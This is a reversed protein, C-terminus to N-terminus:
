RAEHLAGEDFEPAEAADTESDDRRLYRWAGFGFLLLGIVLLWVLTQMGTDPLMAGIIGTLRLAGYGDSATLQQGSSMATVQVEGFYNFTEDTPEGSIDVSFTCTYEKGPALTTLGCVERPILGDPGVVATGNASTVTYGALSEDVLQTIESDFVGTNTVTYNVEFSTANDALIARNAVAGTVASVPTGPIRKTVELGPFSNLATVAWEAGGTSTDDGSTPLATFGVNDSSTTPNAILTGNATVTLVPNVTDSGDNTEIVTCKQNVPVDKIVHTGGDRLTFTEGVPSCVQTFEFTNGDGESGKSEKTFSVDYAARPHHFEAGVIFTTTTSSADVPVTFTTDYKKRPVDNLPLNVLATDAGEYDEGTWTAFRMYPRRDGNVVEVEGRAALAPSAEYTIECEVGVPLEITDDTAVPGDSTPMAGTNVANLAYSRSTKDAGCTVTATYGGPSAGVLYGTHRLKLGVPSTRREITDTFSLVTPDSAGPAPARGTAIAPDKEAPDENSSSTVTMKLEQPLATPSVEQFTCLSGAPVDANPSTYNWDRDFDGVGISSPIVSPDTGITSTQSGIAKCQLAFQFRTDRTLLDLDEAKGAVTKELSVPSYEYGYHDTITIRNEEPNDRSRVFPSMTVEDDLDSDIYANGSARDIVWDVETPKIYAELPQGNDDMTLHLSGFNDGKVQCDAGVPINNFTVTGEGHIQELDELLTATDDTEPDRCVISFNHTYLHDQLNQNSAAYQERLSGPLNAVKDLKASTLRRSYTNTATILDDGARSTFTVTNGDITQTGGGTAITITTNLDIGTATTTPGESGTCEAGEPINTVTRRQGDTITSSINVGPTRDPNTCVLSIPFERQRKINKREESIYRETAPDFAVVKTSTVTSPKYSYVSTSRLVTETGIVFPVGFQIGSPDSSALTLERNISYANGNYNTRELNDVPTETIVCESGLPLDMANAHFTDGNELSFPFYKETYIPQAPPQQPDAPPAQPDTPQTVATQPVQCRLEYDIGRAPVLASVGGLSQTMTFGDGAATFTNTVTVTSSPATVTVSQVAADTTMVISASLTPNAETFSCTNGYPVGMAGSQDNARADAATLVVSGDAPVEVTGQLLVADAGFNRTGCTFRITYSGPVALGSNNVVAKNLTVTGLKYDYTNVVTVLNRESEGSPWVTLVPTSQGNANSVVTQVDNHDSSRLEAGVFRTNATDGPQNEWMNCTSGVPINTIVADDGSVAVQVTGEFAKNTPATCRYNVTYSASALDASGAATGNVLKNVFVDRVVYEYTTRFRMESRSTERVPLTFHYSYNANPDVAVSAGDVTVERGALRIQERQAGSLNTLPRVTCDQGVPIGTVETRGSVQTGSRRMTITARWTPLNSSECRIEFQYQDSQFGDVVPQGLIEKSLVLTGTRYNYNNYAHAPNTDQLQVSYTNNGGNPSAVPGTPATNWQLDLSTGSPPVASAPDEKIQCNAGKPLTEVNKTTGRSLLASDTLKIGPYAESVRVGFRSIDECAYIINFQRLQLEAFNAANGTVTKQLELTSPEFKTKWQVSCSPVRGTPDTVVVESSAGDALNNVRVPMDAPETGSTFTRTISTEDADTLTCTWTPTYRKTAMNAQAGTATSRYVVSGAYSNDANRARIYAGTQGAPANIPTDTTGQRDFVRFGSANFVTQQNTQRLEYLQSDVTVPNTPVSARSLNIGMVFAQEVPSYSGLDVRLATPNRREYLWTGPRTPPDSTFIPIRCAFDKYGGAANPWEVPVVFTGPGFMQDHHDGKCAQEYGTPTVRQYGMTTGGTASIGIYEGVSGNRRTSEGDAFVLSFDRPGTPSSLSINTAVLGTFNQNLSATSKKIIPTKTDSDFRQFVRRGATQDGFASDSSMRVAQTQLTGNDGYNNVSLTMRLTYPGVTKTVQRGSTLEAQTFSIWCTNNAYDRVLDSKRYSCDTFNWNSANAVATQAQAQPPAVPVAMLTIAVILAAVVAFM